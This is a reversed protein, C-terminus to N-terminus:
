RKDSRNPVSVYAADSVKDGPLGGSRVQYRGDMSAGSRSALDRGKHGVLVKGDQSNVVNRPM